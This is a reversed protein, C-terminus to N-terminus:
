LLGDGARDAFMRFVDLDGCCEDHGRRDCSRGFEGCGRSPM